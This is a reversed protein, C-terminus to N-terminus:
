KNIVTELQIAYEYVYTRDFDFTMSVIIQYNVTIIRGRTTYPPLCPLKALKLIFPQINSILM